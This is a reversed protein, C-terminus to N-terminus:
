EGGGQVGDQTLDNLVVREAARRVALFGRWADTPTTFGEGPNAVNQGNNAQLRWRYEGFADRYITVRGTPDTVQGRAKTKRAATLGGILDSLRPM